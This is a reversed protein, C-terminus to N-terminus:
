CVKDEGAKAAGVTGQVHEAWSADLDWSNSCHVFNKEPTKTPLLLSPLNAPFCLSRALTGLTRLVVNMVAERARCLPPPLGSMSTGEGQAGCQEASLGAWLHGKHDRQVLGVRHDCRFTRIFALNGGLGLLSCIERPCNKCSSFTTTSKLPKLLRLCFISQYSQFSTSM